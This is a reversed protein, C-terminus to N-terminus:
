RTIIFHRIVVQQLVVRYLACTENAAGNNRTTISTYDPPPAAGANIEYAGADYGVRTTGKIDDSPGVIGVAVAPSDTDTIRLDITYYPFDGSDPTNNATNLLLPDGWENDFWQSPCKNGANYIYGSVLDYYTTELIRLVRTNGENISDTRYFVNNKIIPTSSGCAWYISNDNLDIAYNPTDVGYNYFINNYIDIDTTLPNGQHDGPSGKGAQGDYIRMSYSNPELNGTGDGTCSGWPTGAETCCEKQSSNDTQHFTNNRITL